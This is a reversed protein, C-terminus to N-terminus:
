VDDIENQNALHFQKTNTKCKNWNVINLRKFQHVTKIFPYKCLCKWVYNLNIIYKIIFRLELHLNFLQILFTIDSHGQCMVRFYIRGTWFVGLVKHLCKAAFGSTHDTVSICMANVHMSMMCTFLIRVIVLHSCHVTGWHLLVLTVINVNCVGNCMCYCTQWEVIM